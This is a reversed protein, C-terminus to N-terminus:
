PCVENHIEMDSSMIYVDDGSTFDVLTGSMYYDFHRNPGASIVIWAVSNRTDGPAVKVSLTGSLPSSCNMGNTDHAHLYKLELGWPDNKQCFKSFYETGSIKKAMVTYDTLCNNVTKLTNKAAQIQRGQALVSWAAVAVGLILGVILLFIALEVFTFGESHSKQRFLSSM